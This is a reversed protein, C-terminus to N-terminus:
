RFGERFVLPLFVASARWLILIADILALPLKLPGLPGSMVTRANLWLAVFAVSFFHYALVSPMQIIGGLMGCPGDTIGRQFYEFCGLQLARLQRDDAAFLTYLAQALVNIISTYKKRRWYFDLLAPRVVAPDELNPVRSPHLLEALLLADNFAVTMGGGTLPHRMNFADGLLVVGQQSQPTPPLWSNPMSRPIKGDELAKEATARVAQPLAPIAVNKIYGRVGGAAPAAEPLGQPVDFLARTEHTGIQYLLIPSANGIIVHGFNEQPLPCDILELAYFKSKVVSKTGLIQKRFKSDYGDAIITLQGFFYDPKKAGTEPDTTRSEVGLVQESHEGRITSTVETEVVTINAHALCAKRLQTIFRGHHFSRGEPRKGDGDTGSGSWKFPVDGADDVPPYPILSPEGHYIVNYGKCPVADIGDVCHGLGLKKLAALGGPQLLEGVIRDPERMWRELLIVSRGQEALAYAAACGFVGAGVVVVDAEHYTERRLGADAAASVTATAMSTANPTARPRLRLGSILLHELALPRRTYTSSLSAAFSVAILPPWEDTLYEVYIAAWVAPACLAELWTSVAWPGTSPVRRRQFFPRTHHPPSATQRGFTSGTLPGGDTGDPQRLAEEAGEPTWPDGEARELPFGRWQPAGRGIVERRTQGTVVADFWRARTRAHSPRGPLSTERIEVHVQQLEDVIDPGVSVWQGISTQFQAMM